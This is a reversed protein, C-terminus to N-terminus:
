GRQGQRQGRRQGGAGTERPANVITEYAAPNLYQPQYTEGTQKELNSTFARLHNRSGKALNEYVLQIDAEDTQAIREELDLIDIEEIAAGVRLADALSKSGDAVLQDYLEQLTPNTFVGVDPAAPDTLGYRDILHSVAEMHTAESGAINQFIPLKWKQSLTLYVDRALKEEERMYLIGDIEPDSLQGTTIQDLTDSLVTQDITTSGNEDVKTLDDTLAPTAVTAAPASAVTPTLPASTTCAVLAILSLLGVISLLNLNPICTKM